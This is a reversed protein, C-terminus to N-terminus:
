TESFFEPLERAQAAYERLGLTILQEYAVGREAAKRRLDAITAQDFQITVQRGPRSSQAWNISITLDSQDAM